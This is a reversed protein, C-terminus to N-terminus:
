GLVSVECPALAPGPDQQPLSTLGESYVTLKRHEGSGGEKSQLLFVQESSSNRMDEIAGFYKVKLLLAINLFSM